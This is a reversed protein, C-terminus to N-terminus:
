RPPFAQRAGDLAHVVGQRMVFRVRELVTVDHADRRLMMAMSLGVLGGGLVIIRAM